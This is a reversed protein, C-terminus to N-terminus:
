RFLRALLSEKLIGEHYSVLSRKALQEVAGLVSLEAFCNEISDHFSVVVQGDRYIKLDYVETMSMDDLIRSLDSKGIKTGNVEIWVDVDSSLLKTFETFFVPPDIVNLYLVARKRGLM